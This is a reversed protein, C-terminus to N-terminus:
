LYIHIADKDSLNWVYNNGFYHKFITDVLLKHDKGLDHNMYLGGPRQFLINEQEAFRMEFIIYDGEYGEDGINDTGFDGWGTENMQGVPQVYMALYIGNNHLQQRIPGRLLDVIYKDRRSLNNIYPAWYPDDLKTPYKLYINDEPM